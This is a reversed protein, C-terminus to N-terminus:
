QVLRASRLQAPEVMRERAKGQAQWFDLVVVRDPDPMDDAIGIAEVEYTAIGKACM